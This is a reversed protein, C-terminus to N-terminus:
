PVKEREPGDYAQPIRKHSQVCVMFADGDGRLREHCGILRQACREFVDGEDAAQM